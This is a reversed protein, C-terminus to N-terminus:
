RNQCYSYKKSQNQFTGNQDGNPHMLLGGGMFSNLSNGLVAALQHNSLSLKSCHMPTYNVVMEIRYFNRWHKQLCSIIIIHFYKDNVLFKPITHFYEINVLLNTIVLFYEINVLCDTITCFYEIRVLFPSFTAFRLVNSYRGRDTWISGQM